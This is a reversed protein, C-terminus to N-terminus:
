PLPAWATLGPEVRWVTTSSAHVGELGRVVFLEHGPSASIVGTWRQNPEFSTSLWSQFVTSAGEREASSTPPAPALAGLFPGRSTLGSSLELWTGPSTVVQGTDPEFRFVAESTIPACGTLQDSSFSWQCRLFRHRPVTPSLPVLVGETGCLGLFVQEDREAVACLEFGGDTAVVVPALSQRVGGDPLALTVSNETVAVTATAVLQTAAGVDFTLRTQGERVLGGDTLVWRVGRDVSSRGTEFTPDIAGTQDIVVDDCRFRSTSIPDFRSCARGVQQELLVERFVPHPALRLSNWHDSGCRLEAAFSFAGPLDVPATFVTVGGDEVETPGVTAFVGGDLDVLAGRLLVGPPAGHVQVIFTQLGVANLDMEVNAEVGLFISACPGGADDVAASKCGAVVMLGLLVGRM